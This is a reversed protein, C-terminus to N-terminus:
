ANKNGSHSRVKATDSLVLQAAIRGSLMGASLGGGPHVSSGVFYLGGVGTARGQPRQFPAFLGNSSLGHISGRPEGYQVAIDEPTICEEAVIHSRLESMGMAELKEIVLDKYSDVEAAWSFERSVYPANVQIFFREHGAAVMTPELQSLPCVYITPDRPAVLRTFIDTFETRYNDSFFVNHQQLQKYTCDTELLLIFSSFSPELGGLRHLARRAPTNGKLFHRYTTTIDVNSIVIDTTVQEGDVLEIGTTHQHADVTIRRVPRNTHVVVGAHEALREMANALQGMGGRPYWAGFAYEVYPIIAYMAPVRYPSSGNYTAYRDFLQQIHADEFYYRVLRDLSLPAFTCGIDLPRHLHRLLHKGVQPFDGPPSFLFPQAVLDYVRRGYNLFRGFNNADNESFEEITAAMREADSSADFVIGDSYTYRCLTELPVLEIEEDLSSGAIDFLERAVDPMTLIPPTASFGFGDREIVKLKGGVWANREFIQVRCGQAALRIGATLGGVGAGIIAVSPQSEGEIVQPAIAQATTTMQDESQEALM